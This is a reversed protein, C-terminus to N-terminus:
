RLRRLMALLSLSLLWGLSSGGYGARVKEWRLQREIWDTYRSVRTYVGYYGPQACHESNDANSGVGWSVIGAQLWEGAEDRIMLPGGSDGYCSDKAQYGPGPPYGACIMNDTIGGITASMALDCDLQHVLPVEVERLTVPYHYSPKDTLGWGIVTAMTGPKALDAEDEPG